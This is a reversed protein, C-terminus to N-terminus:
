NIKKFIILNFLYVKKYNNNIEPSSNMANGNKQNKGLDIVLYIYEATTPIIM